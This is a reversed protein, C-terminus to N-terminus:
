DKFLPRAKYLWYVSLIILLFTIFVAIVCLLMAILWMRKKFALFAAAGAIPYGLMSMMGSSKFTAILMEETFTGPALQELMEFIMAAMDAAYFYSYAGTVLAIAAGILLVGIAKNIRRENKKDNAAIVRADTGPDGLYAGCAPCSM